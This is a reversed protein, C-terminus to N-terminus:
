ESKLELIEFLLRKIINAAHIDGENQLRRITNIAEVDLDIGSGEAIQKIMDEMTIDTM